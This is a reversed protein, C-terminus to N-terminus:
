LEGSPKRKNRIADVRRSPRKPIQAKKAAAGTVLKGLSEEAAPPHPWFHESLHAVVATENVLSPGEGPPWCSPCLDGPPWRRDARCGGESAVRESVASHLRWFYLAAGDQRLAAELVGHEEAIYSKLFHDRCTRCGFFRGLFARIAPLLGMTHGNSHSGAGRPEAFMPRLSMIHLLTWMRCTDTQCPSPKRGYQQVVRRWASQVAQVATKYDSACLAASGAEKAAVEAANSALEEVRGIAESVSAM